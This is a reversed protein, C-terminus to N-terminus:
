QALQVLIPKLADVAKSIPMTKLEARDTSYYRYYTVSYWHLAQNRVKGVPLEMKVSEVTMEAIQKAM